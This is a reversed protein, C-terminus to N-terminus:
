EEPICFYYKKLREEGIKDIAAKASDEDKFYLSSNKLSINCIVVVKQYDYDYSLFYHAFYKNVWPRDDNALQELEHLVKLQEAKFKAEEITKFMNGLERRDEDLPNDGYTGFLINGDSIIYYYYDGEQPWTTVKKIMENVVEKFLAEYEKPVDFELKM